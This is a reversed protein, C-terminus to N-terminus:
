VMEGDKWLLHTKFNEDLCYIEKVSVNSRVNKLLESVSTYLFHIVREFPEECLMVAKVLINSFETDEDIELEKQIVLNNGDTTYNISDKTNFNVISLSSKDTSSIIQAIFPNEVGQEDILRKIYEGQSIVEEVKITTM